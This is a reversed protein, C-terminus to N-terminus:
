LNSIKSRFQVFYNLNKGILFELKVMKVILTAIKQGNTLYSRQKLATKFNSSGKIGRKEFKNLELTYYVENFVLM